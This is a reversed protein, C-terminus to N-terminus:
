FDFCFVESHLKYNQHSKDPHHYAYALNRPKVPNLIYITPQFRHRQHDDHILSDVESYPILTLGLNVVKAQILGSFKVQRKM